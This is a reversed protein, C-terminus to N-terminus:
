WIKAILSDPRRMPDGPKVNFAAFFEKMNSLPGVVRFQPPSHTNTKVMNLLADDQMKSRWVSAWALFFRQDPLLGDISEPPGHQKLALRMADYAAAVGAIDAINEGLTLRGNVHVSDLVTYADYQRVVTLAAADFKRQDEPMWWNMMTGEADFSKGQDDFEHSIEHGIFAGM